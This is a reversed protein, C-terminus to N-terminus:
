GAAIVTSQPGFSPKILANSAFYWPTAGPNLPHSFAVGKFFM